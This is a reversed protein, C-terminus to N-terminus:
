DIYIINEQVYRGKERLLIRFVGSAVVAIVIVIVIIITSMETRDRERERFARQRSVIATTACFLFLVSVRGRATGWVGTLLREDRLGSRTAARPITESHITMYKLRIVHTCAHEASYTTTLDPPQYAPSGLMPGTTANRRLSPEWGTRPRGDHKGCM